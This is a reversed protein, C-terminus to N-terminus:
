KDLIIQLKVIPILNGFYINDVQKKLNDIQTNFLLSSFILTILATCVLIILKLTTSKFFNNIM